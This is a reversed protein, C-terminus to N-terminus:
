RHLRHRDGSSNYTRFRSLRLTSSVVKHSLTLWHSAVPWHNEGPVGTEWVLLVSWWLIVSINNFTAYFVIFWVLGFTQYIFYIPQFLYHNFYYIGFCCFLSVEGDSTIFFCFVHRSTTKQLFQNTKLDFHKIEMTVDCHVRAFPLNCLDLDSTLM